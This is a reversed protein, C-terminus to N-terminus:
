WKKGGHFFTRWQRAYQKLQMRATSMYYLMAAELLVLICQRQAKGLGGSQGRPPCRAMTHAQLQGRAGTAPDPAQPRPSAPGTGAQQRHRPTGPQGQHAGIPAGQRGAPGPSAITICGLAGGAALWLGLWAWAGPGGPGAPLRGEVRFARTLRRCCAPRHCHPVRGPALSWSVSTSPLMWALACVVQFWAGAVAPCSWPLAFVGGCALSVFRNM